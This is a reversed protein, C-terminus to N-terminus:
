DAAYSEFVASERQRSPYWRWVVLLAVTVLVIAIVFAYTKGTSFATAADRLLGEASAPPYSAAVSEAKQYSAAIGEAAEESIRAAEEDPLGAYSSMMAGSYTLTLAGAMLAQILAGGFDRTLDTFSSGMGARQAPLSAMIATSAAAGAFATGAGLIAYPALVVWVSSGPHWLMAIMVFGIGICGIGVTLTFRGGRETMWRSAFPSGVLFCIAAPITTAASQFTDYRLVNATFQQGIYLGGILAGFAISGALAAILFTPQGALRLDVLPHPASRQRVLFLATVVVAVVVLAVLMVSFGETAEQVALVLAAVAIISLLGGLHDVPETDLDEDAPIVLRGIVLLAVAFPATLLFVSGWWFWLLLAGAVVSGLFATSGGVGSWLAIAGTRARGRWLVSILSLTTPFLLAAGVGGIIRAAVLVEVSPAWAAILAAPISVAAGWMLLSKRGYRDGVAGLYLVTAALAMTFADAILNQQSQSADLAKAIDPLAVNAISMNINAVGAAVLLTGLIWPAHQPRDQM